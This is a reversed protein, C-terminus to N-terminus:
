SYGCAGLCGGLRAQAPWSRNRAWSGVRSAWLTPDQQLIRRELERLEPGPELGLEEILRRRAAQYAALAETQRGARYLALMLGAALREREPHEAALQELEPVLEAGAAWGSSPTSGTRWRPWGCRSSGSIENQAFPEYALDALPPGRWLALAPRWSGRSARPTVAM